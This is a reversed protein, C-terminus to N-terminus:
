TGYSIFTNLHTKYAVNEAKSGDHNSMMLSYVAM